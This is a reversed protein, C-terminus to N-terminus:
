CIRHHKTRDLGGYGIPGPDQELDHIARFEAPARRALWTELFDRQAPGIPDLDDDVRALHAEAARPQPFIEIATIKHDDGARLKEGSGGEAARQQHGCAQGVSDARDTFDRWPEAPIAAPAVPRHMPARQPGAAIG